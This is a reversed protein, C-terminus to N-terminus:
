IMVKLLVEKYDKLISALDKEYLKEFTAIVWGQPNIIDILKEKFDIKVQVGNDYIYYVCQNGPEQEVRKFGKDKLFQVLSKNTKYYTQAM